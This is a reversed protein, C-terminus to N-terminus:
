KIDERKTSFAFLPRWDAATANAPLKKRFHGSDMWQWAVPEADQKLENIQRELKNIYAIANRAILALDQTVQDDKM